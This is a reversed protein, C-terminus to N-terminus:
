VLQTVDHGVESLLERVLFDILHDSFGINIPIALDVVILEDLHHELLLTFMFM